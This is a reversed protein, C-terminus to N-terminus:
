FDVFSRSFDILSVFFYCFDALFPRYDVLLGFFDGFITRIKSFFMKRFFDLIEGERGGNRLKERNKSKEGFFREKKM